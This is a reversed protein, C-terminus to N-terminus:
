KFYRRKKRPIGDSAGVNGIRYRCIRIIDFGCSKTLGRNANERPKQAGWEGDKARIRAIKQEDISM